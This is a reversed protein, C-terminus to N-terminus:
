CEWLAIAPNPLCLVRM